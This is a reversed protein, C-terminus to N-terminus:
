VNNIDQCEQKQIHTYYDDMWVILDDSDTFAYEGNINDEQQEKTGKVEVIFGNVVKRVILSNRPYINMNLEKECIEILRQEQADQEKKTVPLVPM